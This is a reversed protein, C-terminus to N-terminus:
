NLMVKFNSFTIPIEFAKSVWSSLFGTLRFIMELDRNINNEVNPHRVKVAVSKGKFRAQYVQGVSGSAIPNM